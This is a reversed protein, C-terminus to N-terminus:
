CLCLTFASLGLNFNNLFIVLEPSCTSTLLFPWSIGSFYRHLQSYYTTDSERQTCQFEETFMKSNDSSRPPPSGGQGQYVVGTTQNLPLVTEILSIAKCKPRNISPPIVTQPCIFRRLIYAAVSTQEAKVTNSNNHQHHQRYHYHQIM